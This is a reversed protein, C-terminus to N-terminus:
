LLNIEAAACIRSGSVSASRPSMPQDHIGGIFLLKLRMLSVIEVTPVSVCGSVAASKHRATSELLM